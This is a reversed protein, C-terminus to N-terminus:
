AQPLRRLLANRVREAARGDLCYLMNNIYKERINVFPDPTDFCVKLMAKLAAPKAIHYCFNTMNGHMEPDLRRRFIREPMILHGIKKKFFDCIIIPKRLAMFEYITSSAETVLVDAAQYLDIINYHEPEIVVVQPYRRRIENILKVHRRLNVGSFKEMFYSWQHLKIILNYDDRLMEPLKLGFSEFSSPYFTPAYLVTKREPNLGLGSLIEDRSAIQGNFLPDIKVLGTLELDTTIGKSRLQQIRFPGEVFRVNLRPSNDRWYSPKVGIGHYIMGVLTQPPVYDEIPYRSWGCIFVDPALKQILQMREEETPTFLCELGRQQLIRRTLLQEDPLTVAATTLFIQFSSDSRLLDILPDFQPLHYLHYSDFVIRIKM